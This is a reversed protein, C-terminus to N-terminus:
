GNESIAEALAVTDPDYRHALFLECYDGAGDCGVADPAWASDAADSSGRAMQEDTVHKLCGHWQEPSRAGYSCYAREDATPPADRNFLIVGIAIVAIWFLWVSWNPIRDTRFPTYSDVAATHSCAARVTPAVAPRRAARSRQNTHHGPRKGAPSDTVHTLRSPLAIRLVARPIEFAATPGYDEDLRIALLTDYPEKMDGMSTRHNTPTSRLTRVQVRRGDATIMDYGPTSPPALEVDYFDAALLEDLDAVLGRSRLAGLARLDNIADRRMREAERLRRM